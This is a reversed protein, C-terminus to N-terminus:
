LCFGAICSIAISYEVNSTLWEEYAPELEKSQPTALFEMAAVETDRYLPLRCNALVREGGSAAEQLNRAEKFHCAGADDNNLYHALAALKTMSYSMIGYFRPDTVPIRGKKAEYELVNALRNNLAGALAALIYIHYEAPSKSLLGQAEYMKNLYVKAVRGAVAQRDELKISKQPAEEAYTAVANVNIIFVLIYTALRLSMQSGM